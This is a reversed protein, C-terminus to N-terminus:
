DVRACFRGLFNLMSESIPQKFPDKLTDGTLNTMATYGYHVFNTIVDHFKGNYFMHLERLMHFTLFAKSNVNHFSNFLYTYKNDLELEKFYLPHTELFRRRRYAKGYPVHDIANLTDSQQMLRHKFCRLHWENYGITGYPGIIKNTDWVRLINPDSTLLTLDIGDQPSFDMFTHLLRDTPAKLHGDLAKISHIPQPIVREFERLYLNDFAQMVISRIVATNRETRDYIISWSAHLETLEPLLPHKELVQLKTNQHKAKYYDRKQSSYQRM